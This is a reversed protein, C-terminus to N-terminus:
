AHRAEERPSPRSRCVLVSSLTPRLEVISRHAPVVTIRSDQTSEGRKHLIQVGRSTLECKELMMRTESM